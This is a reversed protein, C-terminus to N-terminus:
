VEEGQAKETDETDGHHTEDDGKKRSRVARVMLWGSSAIWVGFAICNPWHIRRGYEGWPGKLYEERFGGVKLLDPFKDSSLLGGPLFWVSGDALAVHAGPRPSYTFFGDDPPHKSSAIVPPRSQNSSPMNPSFDRPESWQIGADAVEVLLITKSPDSAIKCPEKGTWAANPGVVAVYSTNTSEQLYAERDSPCAFGRPRSTLLKKNNPGDM